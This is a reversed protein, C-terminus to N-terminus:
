HASKTFWQDFWALMRLTYDYANAPVVMGHGENPYVVLTTPVGATKLAHWWEVSQEPPVEGDRDGVLILTPTKVNKVFHMPDSKAYVAPDDYISAGFFPIMWQDLDNVGYYSLWDSLGAGAVAAAFRNTQTEAWMTMYGGYSHGYIGLRKPDIPFDKLLQDVGSMIDQFDGGGFDKVNARTFAEGQGYSGRPNPCLSFWGMMSAADQGRPAWRNECAASPGGHVMVVLPYKKTSASASADYQAPFLLWGQVRTTGNMWHVSRMEGWTPKLGDNLHTIQKWEGPQGVWVEPAMTASQRVVAVVPPTGTAGSALASTNCGATCNAAWSSSVPRISEAFSETSEIHISNASATSFSSGGDSNESFAIRDPSLWQIDRPTTHLGRTVSLPAGGDLPLVFIDGGTSGEDSMLGEIFAVSKGDPSVRPQAIQFKPTYIDATNGSVADIKYIHAIYWNSDGEGHAAIAVLNKSDPTWDFEYVYMDPASIQTVKGSALDITAIRQEYIHSDIEGSLPTMPELPGAKRPMNEIYLIALTKGDPCFRPSQVYGKLQALTKTEASSIIKVQAAPDDGPVDTIYALSRSDLSWAVDRATIPQSHDYPFVGEPGTSVAALSLHDDAIIAVKTGDPSLAAESITKAQPLSQIAVAARAKSASDQARSSPIFLAAAAAIIVASIKTHIRM